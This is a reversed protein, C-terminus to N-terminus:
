SNQLTWNPRSEKKLHDKKTGVNPIVVLPQKFTEVDVVYFKRTRVSGDAYTENTDLVLHKFLDSSPVNPDTKKYSSSEVIAWVGNGVVTGDSLRFEEYKPLNKLDLFGWIQAPFDGEKWQIM